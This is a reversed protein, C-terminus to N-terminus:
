DAASVYQSIAGQLDSATTDEERMLSRLVSSLRKSKVRKAVHVRNESELTAAWATRVEAWFDGHDVWYESALAFDFTDEHSYTNLGTEHALVRIPEGSEDLEIKRNSQEHVWGQPSITHRNRCAVVHYDDRKTYERRPLPRWTEDSEWTSVDGVHSWAGLAEYRPADDVQYVAQSWRGTAGDSPVRVHAWIDHGQYALLERDEFSWVQRWHKIVDAEGDSEVVLIHQLHIEDGHDEAVVILEKADATYPETVDYGDQLSVTETFAFSVDYEGAMALIAQRDRQFGKEQPTPDDALIAAAFIWIAIQTM